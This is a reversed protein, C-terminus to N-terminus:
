SFGSVSVELKERYFQRATSEESQETKKNDVAMCLSSAFSHCATDHIGSEVDNCSADHKHHDISGGASQLKQVQYRSAKMSNTSTIM